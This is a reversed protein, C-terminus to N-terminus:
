QIKRAAELMEEARARVRIDETFNAWRVTGTSDILFEAPRSIDHGEPGAGKHLLHYRRITETNPDSLIPFTYGAKKSLDASQRPSDVCIAM